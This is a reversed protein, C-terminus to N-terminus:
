EKHFHQMIISTFKSLKILIQSNDTTFLGKVLNDIPQSLYIEDLYIDREAKFFDCELLYHIEDGIKGDHCLPCIRKERDINQYRGTVIPLKHNCTKYKCLPIHYQSELTSLYSEFSLDSKIIRYFSGNGIENVKNLWVDSHYHNLKINFHSKLISPYIFERNRHILYEMDINKLVTHITSLWKSNYDGNNHSQSVKNFLAYSIKNSDSTVLHAWYNLMRQQIYKELKHRGLEGLVMCNSTSRNLHLLKKCFQNHIVELADINSFGWVECGYLLIPVVCSDFLHLQIDPPLQLKRAKAILSFLARKAQSIQKLIPKKFSGNYNFLVGLYAYDPVVEIEIDGFYWKPVNKVSGRSFIIIKTKSINVQLSWLNCYQHLSNLMRQLDEKSESILITDDAYLLTYLKIFCELKDEQFEVSIGDSDKQLFAELDNLFISFLLPSLNEGQRVGVNCTFYDSLQNNYRVCSKAGNYLNQIVRLVKGNIGTAIVKSWLAHRNVSDFAKKYDVFACYLRKQKSLYIDILSHLTFIHDLTSYGERFGAQEEGLLNNTNIFM